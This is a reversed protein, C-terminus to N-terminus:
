CYYRGKLICRGFDGCAACVAYRIEDGEGWLGEATLRCNLSCENCVVPEGDRLYQWEGKKLAGSIRRNCESCLHYFSAQGSENKKKWTPMTKNHEGV